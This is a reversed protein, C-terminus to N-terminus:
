EVRPANSKPYIHVPINEDETFKILHDYTRDDKKIIFIVHDSDTIAKKYEEHANIRQDDKRDSQMKNSLVYKEMEKIVYFAAEFCLETHEGNYNIKTVYENTSLIEDLISTLETPMKNESKNGLITLIM